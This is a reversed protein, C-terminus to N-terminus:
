RRLSGFGALNVGPQGQIKVRSFQESPIMGFAPRAVNHRSSHRPIQWQGFPSGAPLVDPSQEAFVSDGFTSNIRKLKDYHDPVEPQVDGTPEAHVAEVRGCATPRGEQPLPSFRITSSTSPWTACCPGHGILHDAPFPGWLHSDSPQCQPQDWSVWVSPGRPCEGPRYTTLSRCRAGTDAV